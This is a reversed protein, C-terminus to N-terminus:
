KLIRIVALSSHKCATIKAICVKHKSSSAHIMKGNGLAIAAHTYRGHNKYLIIDGKKAKSAKSSVKYKKLTKYMSQCSSRKFKKEVPVNSKKYVWYVFGSCDFTKNGATGWRYKSGIKTKAKDVVIQSSEGTAYVPIWSLMTIILTFILLLIIIRIRKWKM